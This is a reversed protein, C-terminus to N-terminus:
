SLQGRSEFFMKIKDFSNYIKLQFVERFGSNKVQHKTYTDLLWWKGAGSYSEQYGPSIDSYVITETNPNDCSIIYNINCQGESAENLRKGDRHLNVNGHHQFYNFNVFNLGSDILDQRLNLLEVPLLSELLQGCWVNWVIGDTLITSSIISGYNGIDYRVASYSPEPHEQYIGQSTQDVLKNYIKRIRNWDVEYNLNIPCILQYHM